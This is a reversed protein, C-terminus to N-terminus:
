YIINRNSIKTRVLGTKKWYIVLILICEDNNKRFNTVFFDPHTKHAPFYLLIKHKTMCMCNQTRHQVDVFVHRRYNKDQRGKQNDSTEWSEEGSRSGDWWGDNLAQDKEERGFV